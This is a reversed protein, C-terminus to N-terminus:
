GGPDCANRGGPQFFSVFDEEVHLGAPLFSYSKELPAGLEWSAGLYPRLGRGYEERSSFWITREAGWWYEESIM